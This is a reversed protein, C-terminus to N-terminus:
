KEPIMFQKPNTMLLDLFGVGTGYFGEPMSHGGDHNFFEYPLDLSNLTNKFAINM